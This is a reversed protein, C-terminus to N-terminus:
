EEGISAEAEIEEEEKESIRAIFQKYEPSTRGFIARVTDLGKVLVENAVLCADSYAQRSSAEQPLIATADTTEKKANTLTNGLDNNADARFSLAEDKKNIFDLMDEAVRIVDDSTAGRSPFNKLNQDAGQVSLMIVPRWRQIWKILINISEDREEREKDGQVAIRQFEQWAQNVEDCVVTVTPLIASLAPNNDKTREITDKLRNIDRRIIVQNRTPM